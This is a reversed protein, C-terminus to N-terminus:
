TECGNKTVHLQFSIFQMPRYLCQLPQLDWKFSILALARGGRDEQPRWSGWSKCGTQSLSNKNVRRNLWLMHGLGHSIHVSLNSAGITLQMYMNKQSSPGKFNERLWRHPLHSTVAFLWLTPVDTLSGQVVNPTPYDRCLLAAWAQHITHPLESERQELSPTRPTSCAATISATEKAM